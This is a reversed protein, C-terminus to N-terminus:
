EIFDTMCSPTNLELGIVRANLLTSAFPTPHELFGFNHCVLDVLGQVKLKPSTPASSLVDIYSFARGM